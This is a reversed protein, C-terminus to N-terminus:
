GIHDIMAAPRPPRYPNGAAGEAHPVVLHAGSHAAVPQLAHVRLVHDIGAKASVGASSNEANSGAGTDERGTHLATAGAPVQSRLSATIGAPALQDAQLIKM